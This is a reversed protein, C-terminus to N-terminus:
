VYRRRIVRDNVRYGTVWPKVPEVMIPPNNQLRLREKKEAIGETLILAATYMGKWSKGGKWINKGM